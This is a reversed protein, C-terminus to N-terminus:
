RQTRAGSSPEAPRSGEVRSLAMTEDEGLFRRLAQLSRHQLARISGERKGMLVGIERPTLGAAFRYAIVDRQDATLQRIARAVSELEAAQEAVAEPGPGPNGLAQAAELPEHVRRVRLHDIAANRALRFLWAEFPIGRHRYRPLAEIMKLFTRQTLDEADPHNGVRLLSFRYVRTAFRDYLAGLAAPDGGKVRDVLTEIEDRDTM